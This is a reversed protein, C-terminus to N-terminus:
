KFDFSLLDPRYTDGTIISPSKYGPLDVFLTSNHEPQFIKAVFNLISDHRWTFRPLYSQCGAVVHLLTEPNLCLSCDSNSMIGWKTLNKRTPLTNNIYRITFNYISKPLSSQSKSWLNNLTSLSFKTTNSFFSGQLLLHNQLKDEQASKFSKLVEKTSTYVDYQINTNDCTSKWLNRICDNPSTKLAKRSVTQCQTFKVSPPYINLGFKNSTLFVNSLTGSVPIELWKRVFKNVVSDMNESVWTKSLTAVTFHWSFKSLLYRSYLLIKNKPHLPKLDIESMIDELLTILEQKHDKDSMNFDFYKGLYRFSEGIKTAPILKNDILLRPLYQMSKTLSKKIGFTSCKDVRNIMNSWQCWISFRNLLHQNESEQGSIVAADDAFQFWHIPNLFKTMFGFQRYKDAKIHQIFTNFCMNFLLPSLCDGQLVGRGVTIFPTSFEATIITTNFDTYLSKIIENIQEPIHHYDLVSQILNHHVEGFANKLDLLTIVVSRQKIRAQNIINTMQATHELTGSLNPTFGKQIKQEIFNNATLFSFMANRLYSTFVKLPISELTIPRFNSPDNTNGKKHILVSCAKKWEAPVSKSSWVSRIVETLYTRLFPCRKFCIISLQDLPCPSACAKMRRIINTVQRYTPPELDFNIVPESLKPIWSPICFLKHTNIASLTRKFYTLCEIMSFTPLLSTNKNLINKVYDWFNRGIYNDHNFVENHNQTTQDDLNNQSANRLKERLTRSM